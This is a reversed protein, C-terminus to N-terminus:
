RRASARKRCFRDILEFITETVEDAKRTGDVIELVSRERYHAVLPDAMQRYTLLRNRITTMNDDDRTILTSGCRSCLEEESGYLSGSTTLAKCKSCIRRSTLRRELESEPVELVIAQVPLGTIMEVPMADTVSIPSATAVARAAPQRSSTSSLHM